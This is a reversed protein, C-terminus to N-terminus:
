QEGHERRQETRAKVAAEVQQASARRMLHAHVKRTVAPSSHGFIMQVTQIPVGRVAAAFM